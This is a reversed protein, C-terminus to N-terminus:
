GLELEAEDLQTLSGKTSDLEELDLQSNSLELERLEIERLELQMLDLSALSTDALNKSLSELCAESDALALQRLQPKEMQSPKAAVMGVLLSSSSFPFAPEQGFVTSLAGTEAVEPNLRLKAHMTRDSANHSLNHALNKSPHVKSLQVQGRLQIHKNRRSIGLQEAIPRGPVLEQNWSSIRLHIHVEKELKDMDLQQLLSRILCALGLALRMSELEAHHQEQACAPKHFAIVSAGWLHLCTTSTAGVESWSTSSYAVLELSQPKERTTKTIAPHLSLGFHRTEALHRLVKRLQMNHSTTPAELSQALLHAESSLDPRCATALWTLEGVTQRFLEQQDAELAVDQSASPDHLEETDLSTTCTEQALDHRQLLNTVLCDSAHLSVSHSTSQYELTLNGFSVQTSTDLRTPPDLLILASLECFFLEQQLESGGILLEHQCLLIVLEDGTFINNDVKNEGLGLTRLHNGLAEESCAGTARTTTILWKQRLSITLLIRLSLQEQDISGLSNNSETEAALEMEKIIRTKELTRPSAAAAIQGTQELSRQSSEQSAQQASPKKKKKKKTRRKAGQRRSATTTGLNATNKAQQADLKELSFSHQLAGGSTTGDAELTGERDDLLSGNPQPLSSGRCTNFGSERPCAEIYLLQGQTKLQIAAGAKNVLYYQQFNNRLLGLQNQHLADMGLVAHQVSAIVFSVQFSMNAGTLQVTRRGFAQIAEGTITRLQLTSEFPRLEIHQAFDWPALSMAAGTDVLIGWAATNTTGIGLNSTNNNLKPSRGAPLNTTSANQELNGLTGEGRGLSNTTCEEHQITKEWATATQQQLNTQQFSTWCTQATTTTNNQAPLEQKETKSGLQRLQFNNQGKNQRLHALNNEDFSVRKPKKYHMWSPEWATGVQM